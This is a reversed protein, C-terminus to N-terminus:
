AISLVPRSVQAAAYARAVRDAELVAELSEPEKSSATKLTAEIVRPIEVFPLRQKLFAEVAVENAANLAISASGGARLAQYALGLCPFRAEDPAEFTLAGISLFDLHSTGSHLRQPFGLGYAIPTRMDPTGL